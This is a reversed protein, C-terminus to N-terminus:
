TLTPAPATSTESLTYTTTSFDTNTIVVQISAILTPISTTDGDQFDITWTLGNPINVTVTQM